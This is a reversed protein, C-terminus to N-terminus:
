PARTPEKAPKKLWLVVYRGAKWLPGLVCYLVHLRRPLSLALIMETDNGLLQLRDRIRDAWSERTQVYFRVRGFNRPM